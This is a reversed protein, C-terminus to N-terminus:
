DNLSKFSDENTGYMSAYPEFGAAGLIMEDHMTLEERPGYMSAFPGMVAAGLIMEDHTTLEEDEPTEVMGNAPVPLCAGIGAAIAGFLLGCFLTGLAGDLLAGVVLGAILFMLANVIRIEHKDMKMKM